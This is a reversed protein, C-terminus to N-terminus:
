NTWEHMLFLFLSSVTYADDEKYPKIPLCGLKIHSKLPFFIVLCVHARDKLEAEHNCHWFDPFHPLFLYSHARQLSCIRFYKKLGKHCHCLPINWGSPLIHYHCQWQPNRKPWLYGSSMGRRQILFCPLYNETFCGLKM